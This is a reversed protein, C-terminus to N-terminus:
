DKFEPRTWRTRYNFYANKIDRRLYWYITGLWIVAAVGALIWNAM